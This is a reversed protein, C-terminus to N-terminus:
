LRLDLAFGLTRVDGSHNPGAANPFAFYVGLNFRAGLTLLGSLGIPITYSDGFNDFPGALGTVLGVNLDPTTQFGLRIPLYIVEKNGQDRKTIGIQVSPDVLVALPGGRFRALVGVHAAIKSPDLSVFDVGARVAADTGPQRIFGFLADAAVNDFAKPCGRDQGGLCLGNPGTANGFGWIEGHVNTTAGVSLLESVGFYVAPSINVPKAESGKTLNVDVDLRAAIGGARPILPRSNYDTPDNVPAGTASPAGSPEAATSGSAAEPKTEPKTAETDDAQARTDWLSFSLSLAAATALRVTRTTMLPSM